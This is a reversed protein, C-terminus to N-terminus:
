DQNKNTKKRNKEDEKIIKDELECIWYSSKRKIKIDGNKAKLIVHTKRMDMSSLSISHRECLFRLAPVLGEETDFVLPSVKEKMKLLYSKHAYKLDKSLRFKKVSKLCFSIFDPEKEFVEQLTHEKHRRSFGLKENIDDYLKM